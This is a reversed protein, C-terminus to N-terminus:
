VLCVASHIATCRWDSRWHDEQWCSRNHCQWHPTTVTVFGSQQTTTRRTFTDVFTTWSSSGAACICLFLSCPRLSCSFMWKQSVLSFTDCLILKMNILSSESDTFHDSCDDSSHLASQKKRAASQQEQAFVNKCWFLWLVLAAKQVPESRPSSDQRALLEKVPYERNGNLLASREIAITFFVQFRRELKWIALAGIKILHLQRYPQAFYSCRSHQWLM